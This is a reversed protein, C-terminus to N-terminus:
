FGLELKAEESMREPSWPPEWVLHTKATTVGEVEEAVRDEIEPPLTGAVPCAPSTLTMEIDVHGPQSLDLCYILGLDYINVPIEPDYVDRLVAIVRDRLVDAELAAAAEGAALETGPTAAGADAEPAVPSAQQNM